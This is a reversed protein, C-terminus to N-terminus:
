SAPRSRQPDSEIYARVRSESGDDRLVREWYGPTWVRLTPAGLHKRIALTSEAKFSRLVVGLSGSFAQPIKSATARRARALPRWANSVRLLAHVHDPMVVFTELSVHPFREPIRGLCKAVIEGAPSRVLSGAEFRGFLRSRSATLITVFYSGRLYDHCPLRPPRGPESM